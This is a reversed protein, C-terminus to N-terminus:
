PSVPEGGRRGSARWATWARRAIAAVALVLVAAPGLTGLAAIFGAVFTVLNRWAQRFAEAIVSWSGREGVVPFPEHVTVALTSMASRSKLFRLRGEYREIEERVRALEREVELVDRLRGTRAALIEILRQELRRANAVRASVDVYEEGVDEASVNVNELKGLPALSDIAEDFHAAPLKLELTASRTQSRGAEVSANAVYGGVRRALQRVLAVGADLSDVEVSAQGKRIIMSPAMSDATGIDGATPMRQEGSPTIPTALPVDSPEVGGARGVQSLSTAAAPAPRAALARDTAVTDSASKSRSNCALLLLAAALPTM